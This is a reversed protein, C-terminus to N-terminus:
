RKQDTKASKPEDGLDLGGERIRARTQPINNNNYINNNNNYEEEKNHQGLNESFRTGFNTGSNTGSIEIENDRGDDQGLQYKAYNCINIISKGQGAAHYNQQGLTQGMKQSSRQGLTTGSRARVSIMEAERLEAMFRNVRSKSWKWAEAMERVSASLEGRELDVAYGKIKTRMPKWAARAILWFWADRRSFEDAEFMDHGFSEREIKIWGTM